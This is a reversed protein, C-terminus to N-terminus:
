SVIVSLRKIFIINWPWSKPPANTKIIHSLQHIRNCLCQIIVPFVPCYSKHHLVPKAYKTEYMNTVIFKYTMLFHNFYLKIYFQAHPIGLVIYHSHIMWVLLTMKLNWAFEHYTRSIYTMHVDYTRSMKHYAPSIYTIHVHYTRSIYTIHM